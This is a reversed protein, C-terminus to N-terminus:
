QKPEATQPATTQTQPNATQSNSSNSNGLSISTFEIVKNEVPRYLLARGSKSYILVKDGNQANKFFTQGTLKSVDNVTALTPEEDKPLDMVRSVVGTIIQIETQGSTKPDTLNKIQDKTNMYENAFWGLGVIIAIIIITKFPNKRILAFFKKIQRGISGFIRSIFSKKKPQQEVAPEEKKAVPKKEARTIRVIKKSNSNAM